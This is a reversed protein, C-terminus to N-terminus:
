YGFIETVFFFIVLFIECFFLDFLFHEGLIFKVRFSKWGLIGFIIKSLCFKVLFIKVWFKECFLKWRFFFWGFFKWLFLNEAWFLKWGFFKWWWFNWLFEKSNQYVAVIIYPECHVFVERGEGRKAFKELAGYLWTFTFRTPTLFTMPPRTQTQITTSFHPAVVSIKFM